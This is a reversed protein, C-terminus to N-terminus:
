PTPEPAPSEEPMPAGDTPPAEDVTGGGCAGLTAALGLGLMLAILKKNM